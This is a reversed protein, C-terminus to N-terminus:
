TSAPSWRVESRATSRLIRRMIKGSRTKPLGPVILIQTPRPSRVSSTRVQERLAGVLQEPHRRRTGRRRPDRLRLHGPGQDRPPLGGGRSRGRRRARGARERGRGHRHPAGLRQDRRGRARHDLLLRGRRPPLRRRHLVARSRSFYTEHFRDHDGWITRAQGPWSRPLCLNGSVDNGEIIVARRTWWCPSSASSRCRRRGRNSIPTVGPLPTILIGGTETQWWTDVVTCRGEGVVDHYWRWIEPNIPEGVTGLIRLSKARTGPSTSTATARSSPASPPRPPTSSTRSRPRGRDALLARCRPLDPGVRVHGHHRRQGPPRLHHLQPRHDLRRRRRLLLHRGRHDFVYRHTMAAYVLYGGTTHLVGKPKGTSGSTYLIFLPDEAGMWEYTCTSRQEACEEDLWFDRGARM